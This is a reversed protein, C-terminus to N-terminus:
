ELTMEQDVVEKDMEKEVEPELGESEGLEESDLDVTSRWWESEREETEESEMRWSGSSESDESSEDRHEKAEEQFGELERQVEAREAEAAMRRTQNRVGEVSQWIKRLLWNAEAVEKLLEQQPSSEMRLEPGRAVRVRKSPGEGHDEERVRKWWVLAGGGTSCRIRLEQCLRCSCSQGTQLTTLLKNFTTLYGSVKICICEMDRRECSDCRQSEQAGESELALEPGKGKSRPLETEPAALPTLTFEQHLRRRRAEVEEEQERREQEVHREEANRRVHEAEAEAEAQLRRQEEERAKEAAAEM